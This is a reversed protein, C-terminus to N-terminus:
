ETRARGPLGIFQTIKRVPKALLAIDVPGAALWRQRSRLAEMNHQLHAFINKTSMGGHQMDVLVSDILALRFDNLAVARLMWDYDAAISFRRDFAGVQDAVHRRVYFTPHAPMWGRRFSQCGDPRVRWRRLVTRDIHNDIFDLNGHVMDAEALAGAIRSLATRDHFADDANLVGVAAGNYVSLGKNLADYMGNDPESILRLNEHKYTDIISLTNDSSAGDIVIIEKDCHDQGFFSDLTHRITSAANYCVTLVSIKM